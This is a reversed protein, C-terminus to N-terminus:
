ANSKKASKRVGRRCFYAIWCDAWETMIADRRKNETLAAIRYSGQSLKGQGDMRGTKDTPPPPTESVPLQRSGLLPHPPGIFDHKLLIKSKVAAAHTIRYIPNESLYRRLRWDKLEELATAPSQFSAAENDRWHVVATLLETAWILNEAMFPFFEKWNIESKSRAFNDAVAWAEIPYYKSDENPYSVVGPHLGKLAKQVDGDFFSDKGDWRLFFKERPEGLTMLWDLDRKM